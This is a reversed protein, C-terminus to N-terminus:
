GKELTARADLTKLQILENAQCNNIHSTTSCKNNIAVFHRKRGVRIKVLLYDVRKINFSGFSGTASKKLAQFKDM